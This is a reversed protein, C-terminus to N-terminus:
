LEANAEKLMRNWAGMSSHRKGCVLITELTHRRGDAGRVGETCIRWMQGYSKDLMKGLEALPMHDENLIQNM